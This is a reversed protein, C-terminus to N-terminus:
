LGVRSAQGEGLLRSPRASPDGHKDRRAISQAVTEKTLEVARVRQHIPLLSVLRAPESHLLPLRLLIIRSRDELLDVALLIFAVRADLVLLACAFAAASRPRRVRTRSNLQPATWGNYQVNPHERSQEVLLM